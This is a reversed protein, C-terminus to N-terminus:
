MPFTIRSFKLPGSSGIKSLIEAAGIVRNENDRLPLIRVQVPVRHGQKHHLYIEEERSQGDQMTKVVPCDTDCINNGEENIHLIVTDSCSSPIRAASEWCMPKRIGPLNKPVGIGIRLEVIV